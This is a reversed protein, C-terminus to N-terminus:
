PGVWFIDAVCSEITIDRDHDVKVSAVRNGHRVVIGWFDWAHFRDGGYGAGQYVDTTEIGFVEARALDPLESPSVEGYMDAHEVRPHECDLGPEIWYGNPDVVDFTESRVDGFSEGDATCAVRSRGPQIPLLASGTTAPM